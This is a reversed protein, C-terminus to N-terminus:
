ALPATRGAAPGIRSGKRRPGSGGRTAATARRASKGLKKLLSIATEREEASLGAVAEVILAAHPPFQRSILDCGSTTLSVRRIRRDMGASRTVLGERELSDVVYTTAGGTLLISDRLECATLPGKHLLAELVAFASASLGRAAIDSRSRAAVSQYARALVVWLKLARDTEPKV